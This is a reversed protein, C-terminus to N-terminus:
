YICEIAIGKLKLLLIDDSELVTLMYWGEENFGSIYFVITYLGHKLGATKLNRMVMLNSIRIESGLGTIGLMAM